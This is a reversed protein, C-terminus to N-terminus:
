QKTEYIETSGGLSDSARIEGLFSRCLNVRCVTWEGPPADMYGGFLNHGAFTGRGPLLYEFNELGQYNNCTHTAGTLLRFLGIPYM